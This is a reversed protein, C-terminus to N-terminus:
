CYVLDSPHNLDARIVEHSPFWCTYHVSEMTAYEYDVEIWHM